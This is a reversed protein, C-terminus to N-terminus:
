FQNQNVWLIVGVYAGIFLVFPANGALCGYLAKTTEPGRYPVETMSYVMMIAVPGSVFGVSFCSGACSVLLAFQFAPLKFIPDKFVSDTTAFAYGASKLAKLASEPQAQWLAEAADLREFVAGEAINFDAVSPSQARSTTALLLAALLGIYLSLRM